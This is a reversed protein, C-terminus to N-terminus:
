SMMQSQYIEQYVECSKLLEEHTGYGAMQGDEIVLIHSLKMVSSIRQAIVISTTNKYNERIAKRLLSDTKYDLASGAVFCLGLALSGTAFGGAAVAYGLLLPLVLATLTLLLMGYQAPLGASALLLGASILFAILVSKYDESKTRNM